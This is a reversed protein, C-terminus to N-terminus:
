IKIQGATRLLLARLRALERKYICDGCQPKDFPLKLQGNIRTKNKRGAKRFDALRVIKKIEGIRKV